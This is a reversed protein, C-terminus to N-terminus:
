QEMHKTRSLYLSMEMVCISFHENNKKGLDTHLHLCVRLAMAQSLTHFGTRPQAVRGKAPIGGVQPPLDIDRCGFLSGKQLVAWKGSFWVLPQPQFVLLTIRDQPNAAKMSCEQQAKTASSMLLAERLGAYLIRLAICFSILELYTRLRIVCSTCAKVKACAPIM